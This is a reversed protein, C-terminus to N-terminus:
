TGTVPSAVYAIVLGSDFRIASSSSASAGAVTTERM